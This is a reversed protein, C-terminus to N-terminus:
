LQYGSLCLVRIQTFQNCQAVKLLLGGSKLQQELAQIQNVQTRKM